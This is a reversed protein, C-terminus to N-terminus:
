DIIKAEIELLPKRFNVQKVDFQESNEDPTFELIKCHLPSVPMSDYAVAIRMRADAVKMDLNELATKAIGNFLQAVMTRSVTEGAKAAQREIPTFGDKKYKLYNSLQKKVIDFVHSDVKYSYSKAFRSVTGVSDSRFGIFEEGVFYAVVFQKENEM